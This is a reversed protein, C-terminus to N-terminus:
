LPERKRVKKVFEDWPYVKVDKATAYTGGSGTPNIWSDYVVMNAGKNIARDVVEISVEYDDRTPMYVTYKEYSNGDLSYEFSFIVDSSVQMSKVGKCFMINESVFRAGM